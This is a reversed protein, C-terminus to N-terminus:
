ATPKWGLGGDANLTALRIAGTEYDSVLEYRAGRRSLVEAFRGDAATLAEIEAVAEDMAERGRQDRFSDQLDPRWWSHADVEVVLGLGVSGPAAGEKYVLLEDLMVFHQEPSDILDVALRWREGDQPGEVVLDARKTFRVSGDECDSLCRPVSQARNSLNAWTRAIM